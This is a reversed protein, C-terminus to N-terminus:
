YLKDPLAIISFRQGAGDPVQSLMVTRDKARWALGECGLSERIKEMEQPGLSDRHEPDDCFGDLKPSGFASVFDAKMRGFDEPSFNGSVWWLEADAFHYQIMVKVGDVTTIASCTYTQGNPDDEQDACLPPGGARKTYWANFDYFSMGSKLDGFLAVGKPLTVDRQPGTPKTSSSNDAPGSPPAVIPPPATTAAPTYALNTHYILYAGFVILAVLCIGAGELIWLIKRATPKM